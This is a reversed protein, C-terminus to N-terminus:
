RGSQPVLGSAEGLWVQLRDRCLPRRRAHLQGTHDSTTRHPRVRTTLLLVPVGAFAGGLQGQTARFDRILEHNMTKMAEPDTDALLYVPDLEDQDPETATTM